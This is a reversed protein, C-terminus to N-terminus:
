TGFVRSSDSITTTRTTLTNGSGFLLMNAFIPTVELRASVRAIPLVAGRYNGSTCTLGASVSLLTIQGATVPDGNLRTRVITELEAQYSSLSASTDCIDYPARRAIYRTADRIGAEAVQYAWLLRAGEIIVSFLLVMMPLLMAFEVLAAGNEDKRFKRFGFRM